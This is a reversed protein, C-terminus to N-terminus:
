TKPRFLGEEKTGLFASKYLLGEVKGLKRDMAPTILPFHRSEDLADGIYDLSAETFVWDRWDFRALNFPRSYKRLTREGLSNIYLEFYSLVLERITRYIPERSRLFSFNSKALAGWHRDEKYVAIVHDDDNVATMDVVLPPRGSERLAAAAFLAGEFCNAKGEKKTWLPSRTGAEADYDFEDLCAQIAAPTKLGRFINKTDRPTM